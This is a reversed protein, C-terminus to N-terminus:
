KCASSPMRSPCTVPTWVHARGFGGARVAVPLDHDRAARVAAAGEATTTVQAVAAPIRDFAGFEVRAADQFGHSGPVLLRDGLLHELRTLTATMTVESRQM